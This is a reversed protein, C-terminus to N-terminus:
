SFSIPPPNGYTQPLNRRLRVLLQTFAHTCDAKASVPAAAFPAHPATAARAGVDFSLPSLGVAPLAPPTALLSTSELSPQSYPQGVAAEPTCAAAARVPHEAAPQAGAAHLLPLLLWAAFRKRFRAPPASM